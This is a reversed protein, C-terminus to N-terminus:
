LKNLEKKLGLSLSTEVRNRGNEKAGYLADDARSILSHKDEGPKWSSLGQSVTIGFVKGEFDKMETAEITKRIREAIVLASSLDTKPLIIIFEEGGYRGAADVVRINQRILTAVEALVEDGTLHGYQDNVKKFHDIDLMILSLEERYRRAYKLQEGLKRLISRRNYLGTLSDFNALKELKEQDAKGQQMRRWKELATNITEVLKEKSLSGKPLYGVAGEQISQVAIEESGAGTLMVVPAVQKEVIEALWEMGSKEPMQIDMLVLDVRGKNLANQIEARQGAELVVIERDAIQQLYAGVLKRDALDDDCVLIKLLPQKTELM